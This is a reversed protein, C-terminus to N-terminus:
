NFKAKGAGAGSTPVSVTTPHVVPSLVPYIEVVAVTSLAVRRELGEVVPRLRVISRGGRAPRKAFLISM